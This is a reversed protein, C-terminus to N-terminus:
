QETKADVKAEEAAKAEAADEAAETEAEAIRAAQPAACLFADAATLFRPLRRQLAPRGFALVYM